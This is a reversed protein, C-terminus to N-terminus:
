VTAPVQFSEALVHSAARVATGLEVQYGLEFLSLEIAALTSIIDLEDVVGMHAIRFIKGKLQAQGGAMKVGYKNEVKKMFASGDIGQPFNVSTVADSPRQAFVELGIAEIGARTAKALSKAKAWVKENGEARILKLTEVLAMILTHAPTFPTDPDALKKKYQLLDFYFAQPKVTQIQKWAKESVSIFALGPPLMLAKQSGVCLMDIGWEDTRCEQCAAGSIADVILLAKTNRVVEGLAKLDHAVGTSTEVLTAYVAVADPNADLAEKVKEAPIAQGWPVKVEVVEIGYARCLETWRQAFRGADCVIAKGGRPVVCSVSSEMAGTGSATFTIVDNQTAFVEKLGAMAAKLNENAQPTRHHPVEKALTLLAEQPVM